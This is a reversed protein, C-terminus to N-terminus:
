KEKAKKALPVTHVLHSDRKGAASYNSPQIIAPTHSRQKRVMEFSDVSKVRDQSLLYRSSKRRNNIDNMSMKKKLLMSPRAFMSGKGKGKPNSDMSQSPRLKKPSALTNVDGAGDGHENEDESDSARQEEGM